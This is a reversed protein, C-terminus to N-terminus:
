AGGPPNEVHAIFKMAQELHEPDPTHPNIGAGRCLQGYALRQRTSLADFRKEIATLAANDEPSGPSPPAPAPSPHDQAPAQDPAAAPPRSAGQQRIPEQRPSGAPSPNPGGGAPAKGVAQIHILIGTKRTKDIQESHRYCVVKQGRTLGELTARMARGAASWMPETRLKQTGDPELNESKGQAGEDYVYVFIRKTNEDLEHSRYEATFAQSDSAKRAINILSTPDNEEAVERFITAIRPVLATVRDAWKADAVGAASIALEVIKSPEIM